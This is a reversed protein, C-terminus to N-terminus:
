RSVRVLLKGFNDGRLLGALAAPASQLGDIIDERTKVAGSRLWGGMDREFDARRGGHESVIFGQLRLRKQLVARMLLPTGDEGTPPAELNSWAVLGCVPMRAHPNLLPLVAALVYGGVNEFYLDIGQTCAAKLQAAFDDQQHDLCADFGLESVAYGCKEPGGAIGVVRCGKLRAIQGVASGVPGTAAAVVVTEGAEPQGIDLLGVYATLGPMGLVGLAYTVPTAVPDLRVLGAAPVAAYDQWGSSALVIDGVALAEARSVEVRCVTGGCMLGGIPVPEAYSAGERMRGRMYPDLSLYLTRLLVEGAAPEPIEALETRFDAAGPMGQPRRALVIRRNVAAPAARGDDM